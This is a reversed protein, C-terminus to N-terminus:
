RLVGLEFYGSSTFGYLGGNFLVAGTVGGAVAHAGAVPSNYTLTGSSSPTTFASGLVTASGANGNSGATAYMGDAAGSTYPVQRAYLRMGYSTASERVLYLPVPNGNVLGAVVSGTLTGGTVPTSGTGTNTLMADSARRTADYALYGKRTPSCSALFGMFGTAADQCTQWTGADRIKGAANYATAVGGAGYHIGTVNYDFAIDEFPKTGAKTQFLTQFAVVPLFTSGAPAAVGGHLIGGAGFTFLAGNEASSYTCNGQPVLVGTRQTGTARQLSVDVTVTYRLATPNVSVTLEEGFTDGGKYPTIAAPLNPCALPDPTETTCSYNVAADASGSGKYRPWAPYQCLPRTRGFTGAVTDYAMGTSPAVGKEVWNELAALSDWAPLFVGTGHGMGPVTYFRIGKNVAEAGVATVVRQYYEITSNPSVVEDALGHLLILRGGRSLFPALNADGADTLASVATIRAAQSGGGTVAGTLPDLTLTDFTADRTVFYKAWQDGTLYVNADLTTAPNGPVKRTGLDRTTFPGAVLAGELINYGGSRAVGNALTYGSLILPSEITQITALQADSLCTDGTDAGGTCRLSALITSNLQRCSEVSSIIGDAVGDLKDCAKRVTEQVLLTKNLNVWGAGGNLYLARGVAVNSLRLGTYNLAPENAVVGDYDAPWRQIYSLADRGGTSTGLFYAKTPAKGYRANILVMAVDRTKKLSLAGYNALSEDNAAFKGDTISSSQHGGDDGYTAFGLTLPAPKEVPGFRVQETGDILRGNFGGGGFHIAKGNWATPLNVAFTIDPATTDVPKIVGRVQCHEGYDNGAGALVFTATTVSAGGTPQSINAAALTQGNLAACFAAPEITPMVPPTVVVPPDDSPAVPPPADSGGCAALGLALAGALAMQMAWPLRPTSSYNRM